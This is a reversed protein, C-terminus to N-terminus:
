NVLKHVNGSSAYLQAMKSKEASAFFQADSSM